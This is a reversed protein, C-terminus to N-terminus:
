GKGAIADLGLRQKLVPYANRGVPLEMGNSLKVGYSHNGLFILQEIQELDVICSAHIRAFRQGPLISELQTLSYYTRYEGDKTRVFVHKDRAVACVIRDMRVLRISDAERIPLRRIRGSEQALVQAQIAAIRRRAGRDKLRERVRVLTAALREPSVPKLLYDVAGQEFANVAHESFGTVFVIQPPRELEALNQALQLGNLGPMQIDLFIVDVDTDELAAVTDSASEAEAVVAVNTDDLAKRLHARALEEDDVILARLQKVATETM